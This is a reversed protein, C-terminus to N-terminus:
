PTTVRMRPALPTSMGPRDPLNNNECEDIWYQSSFESVGSESTTSPVGRSQEELRQPECASVAMMRPLRPPGSPRVWPEPGTSAALATETKMPVAAAGALLPRPEPLTSVRTEAM